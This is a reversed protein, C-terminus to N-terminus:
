SSFGRRDGRGRDGRGRDGCILNANWKSPKRIAGWSVCHMPSCGDRRRRLRAIVAPSDCRRAAAGKQRTLMTKRWGCGDSNSGCCHITPSSVCLGIWLRHLGMSIAMPYSRMRRRWWRGPPRRCTIKARHLRRPRCRPRPLLRYAPRPLRRPLRHLRGLPHALPKPGRVRRHAGASCCRPPM